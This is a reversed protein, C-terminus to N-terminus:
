ASPSLPWFGGVQTYIDHYDNRLYWTQEGNGWAFEEYYWVRNDLHDTFGWSGLSQDFDLKYIYGTQDGDVLNTKEIVYGEDSISGFTIPSPVDIDDTFEFRDESSNWFWALGENESLYERDGNPYYHYFDYTQCSLEHAHAHDVEDDDYYNEWNSICSDYGNCGSTEYTCSYHLQEYGGNTYPYTITVSGTEGDIFSEIDNPYKHWKDGVVNTFWMNEEADYKWQNGELDYGEWTDLSDDHYWFVGDEDQYVFDGNLNYEFTNSFEDTLTEDKTGADWYQDENVKREATSSAEALSKVKFPLESAVAMGLLSLFAISTKM